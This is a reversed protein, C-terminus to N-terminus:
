LIMLTRMMLVPAYTFVFDLGFRQSYGFAVLRSKLKEVHNSSDYKIKYIWKCKVINKNKPKEVVFLTNNKDLASIEMYMSYKWKEDAIAAPFNLPEGSTSLIMFSFFYISLAFSNHWLGYQSPKKSERTSRRLVPEDHFTNDPQPDEPVVETDNENLNEDKYNKNMTDDEKVVPDLEKREEIFDSEHTHTKAGTNLLKM